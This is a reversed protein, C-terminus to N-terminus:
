KVAWQRWLCKWIRHTVKDNVGSSSM